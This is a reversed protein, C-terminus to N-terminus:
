LRLVRRMVDNPREFGKALRALAEWVEPDIRVTHTLRPRKGEQPTAAKNM